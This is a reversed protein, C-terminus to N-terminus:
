QNKVLTQVANKGSQAVGVSVNLNFGVMTLEHMLKIQQAAMEQLGMTPAQMSFADIHEAITRVGDNQVDVVRSMMSPNGVRQMAPPLPSSSQMLAQFRNVLAQNPAAVPSLAQTSTISTGAIAQVPLILTM